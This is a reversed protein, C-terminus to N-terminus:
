VNSTQKPDCGVAGLLWDEPQENLTKRFFKSDEKKM